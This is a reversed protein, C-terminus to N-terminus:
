HLLSEQCYRWLHAVDVAARHTPPCALLAHQKAAAMRAQRQRLQPLRTLLCGDLWTDLDRVAWPPAGRGGAQWLRDLWQADWAPADSLVLRGTWATALIQCLPIPDMGSAELEARQIGHVAASRESWDTWNWAPRILHSSIRSDPELWAVEIPFSADGLSSAELDIICPWPQGPAEPHSLSTRHIAREDRAPDSGM